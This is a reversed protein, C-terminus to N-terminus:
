PTVRVSDVYLLASFGSDYVLIYIYIFNGSTGCDIWYPSTTTITKSAVLDWNQYDSSVYVYLHSYYGPASYGYLEIHGHADANM